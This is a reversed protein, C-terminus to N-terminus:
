SWTLLVVIPIRLFCDIPPPPSSHLLKAEYNSTNLIVITNGMDDKLVLINPNDNLEYITLSEEKLLNNKPAKAFSLIIGCEKWIEETEHSPIGNTISEISFILDEVMIKEPSIAYNFHKELLEPSPPNLDLYSINM